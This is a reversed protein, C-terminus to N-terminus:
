HHKQQDLIVELRLNGESEGRGHERLQHTSTLAFCLASALQYGSTQYLANIVAYQLLQPARVAIIFRPPFVARISRKTEAGVLTFADTLLSTLIVSM